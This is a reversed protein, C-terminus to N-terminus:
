MFVTVYFVVRVFKNSLFSLLKYTYMFTYMSPKYFRIMQRNQYGMKNRKSRNAPFSIIAICEVNETLKKWGDNDIHHYM